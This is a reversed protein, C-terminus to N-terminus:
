KLILALSEKIDKLEDELKEIRKKHDELILKEIRDFREDVRKFKLDMDAKTAMKEEIDDFRKDVGAFGKGIMLTLNNITIKKKAM